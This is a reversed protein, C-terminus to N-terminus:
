MKDRLIELKDNEHVELDEGGPCMNGMSEEGGLNQCLRRSGLFYAM